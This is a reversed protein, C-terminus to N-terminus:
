PARERFSAWVRTSGQRYDQDLNRGLRLAASCFHPAYVVLWWFCSFVGRSIRCGFFLCLSPSFFTLSGLPPFLFVLFTRFRLFFPASLYRGAESAPTNQAYSTTSLIAGTHQLGEPPRISSHIRISQEAEREEAEAKRVRLDGRTHAHTHTCETVGNAAHGDKETGRRKRMEPKDRTYLSLPFPPPTPSSGLTVFTNGNTSGGM